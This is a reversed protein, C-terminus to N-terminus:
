GFKMKKWATVRMQELIWYNNDNKNNNYLRVVSKNFYIIAFITYFSFNQTQFFPHALLGFSFLFNFETWKATSLLSYIAHFICHQAREVFLKM